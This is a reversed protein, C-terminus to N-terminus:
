KPFERDLKREIRQIGMEVNEIKGEIRTIRDAQPARATDRRELQNVRESISSAWWVGAVTQSTFTIFITAILAIPVRRDLHWNHDEPEQKM